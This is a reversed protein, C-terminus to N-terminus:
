DVDLVTKTELDFRHLRPDYQGEIHAHGAPANDAADKEHGEHDSCKFVKTHFAGTEKHYFTFTKLSM